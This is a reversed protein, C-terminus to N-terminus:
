RVLLLQAQSPAIREGSSLTPPALLLEGAATLRLLYSARYVGPQLGARALILRDDTHAADALDGAPPAVLRAGTPLLERLAVFHRERYTVLTLEVRLVQGASLALPSVPRGSRADILERLVYLDEAPPAPATQGSLQYSLFVPGGTSTVALTAHPAVRSLPVSIQRTATLASASALTTGRLDALRLEARRQASTQASGLLALAARAGSYGDAWGGVGRSGALWRRAEPLLDSGPRSRQLAQLALGTASVATSLRPGPEPPWHVGREDRVALNALRDLLVQDRTEDPERALLLLALGEAGLWPAASDPPPATRRGLLARIYAAQVQIAPPSDPASLGDLTPDFLTDPPALGAGRASALAELVTATVFPQSPEGPWWGWGGDGNQAQLLEALASAALARTDSFPASALLLGATDLRSRIPSASLARATSIALAREDPALEATLLGASGRPDLTPTLALTAYGQVLLGRQEDGGGPLVAPALATEAQVRGGGVARATLSVQPTQGARVAWLERREEGPTLSLERVSRQSLGPRVDTQELVLRLSQSLAGTNRLRVTLSVVDGARLFPPAGLELELARTVPLSAHAQGFRQPGDAAWAHIELLAAEEPLTYTLTLTGSLGTHLAPRWLPTWARAPRDPPGSLAAPALAELGEGRPDGAPPGVGACVAQAGECVGAALVVDAPVPQGRADSTTVTLTATAGPQYATRDASIAVSLARAESRVPLTVLASALATARPSTAPDRREVLRLAVPLQPPADAPVTVTILSGPRLQQVTGTLGAGQQLAVLANANPFPPALLLTATDGPRYEAKDTTVLLREDAPQRGTSAGPAAIWLSASSTASRGDADQATAVLRYEGGERLTLPLAARGDAGTTLSRQLVRVDRPSGDPSGSVPGDPPSRRYLEARVTAGPLPRGDLTAALLEATQSEGASLVRTPLLIGTQVLASRLTFTVASRATPGGPEAAELDLRYRLPALPLGATSTLVLTVRGDPGSQTQGRRPGPLPLPPPAGELASPPPQEASLTWSIVAGAVPLGEPTAVQIPLAVDSGALADQPATARALLLPAGSPLVAFRRAFSDGAVSASALYEGPPADAPLAFAASLVGSSSLAVTTEYVRAISGAPRVALEVQTGAPPLASGARVFGALAVTDGPRYSPRDTLLTAQFPDPRPIGPAGASSVASLGSDAAVAVFPQHPNLSLPPPAWLGAADTVGRHLLAGDQYLAVPVNARPAGSQADTAWVLGAELGSQWLLRTGTLLLLADARPGEPTRLRLYYAGPPLAVSETIAVALRSASPINLPDELRVSWARRQPQGYREPSFSSWDSESFALMRVVTAEDLSYLALDLRSLNTRRATLGIEGPPLQLVHNSLEPLVLAPAAPATLFRARYPQALRTGNRDALELPLTVTYSTAPRFDASIRAESDVAGVRLGSVPPEFRIAGRLAEADVPTTFILRLEQGLPLTQGEGPFRGVVQPAPAVRFSWRQGQGLPLNGALPPLGPPLSAQYTQGPLWGGAPTFTLVQTADPLLATAFSGTLSPSIALSQQLRAPELAPAIRLVLPARPTVGQAGDAPQAALVTPAPTSFRWVFPQDLQGGELGALGAELTATYRTSRQLPADPRLLLTAQDLWVLTGSLPPSFRLGPLSAPQGVLAAPVIPLSFRLSLASDPPVDTAGDAPLTEAVAPAPATRFPLRLPSGLPRLMGSPADSRLTLAYDTDPRLPLTPSITLTTRDASWLFRLPAPPELTLAREVLRPNMPTSFRLELRARTAVNAAGAAPVSQRVQPPAGLLPLALRLAVLLAGAVVAALLVGTWLQGAWRLIRV